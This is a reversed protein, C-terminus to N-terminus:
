PGTYPFIHLRLSQEHISGNGVFRLHSTANGGWGGEVITAGALDGGGGGGVVVM